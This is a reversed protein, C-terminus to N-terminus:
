PNPTVLTADPIVRNPNFKQAATKKVECVQLTGTTHTGDPKTVRCDGGNSSGCSNDAYESFTVTSTWTPFSGGSTGPTKQDSWCSCSCTHKADPNKARAITQQASGGSPWTVGAVVALSLISSLWHM